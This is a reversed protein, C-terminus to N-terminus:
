GNDIRDLNWRCFRQLVPNGDSTDHIEKYISTARYWDNNADYYLALCLQMYDRERKKEKKKIRQTIVIGWVDDFFLRTISYEASDKPFNKFNQSLFTKLSSKQGNKIMSASYMSLYYVSKPDQAYLRKYIQSCLAWKELKWALQGAPELILYYDPNITLVQLYDNLAEVYKEKYDFASGRFLYTLFYDKNLEISKTFADIAENMKNGDRYCEGLELWYLYNDPHIKIAKKLYEEAESYSDEEMAIKALYSYALSNKNDVQLVQKFTKKGAAFNEQYYDIKGLGFLAPSYNSKVKLAKSYYERAKKYNKILMQEDALETLAELNNKDISLIRELLQKKGVKDGRAKCILINLFIYDKNQPSLEMLEKAIVQAEGYRKASILMSSQLYRIQELSAEEENLTSFLKIAEDVGHADLTSKLSLVFANVSFPEKEDPLEETATQVGYVSSCLLFFTLIISLKM